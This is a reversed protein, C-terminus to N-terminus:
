PLTVPASGLRKVSREIELYTQTVPFYEVHDDQRSYRKYPLKMSMFYIPYHIVIKYIILKITCMSLLLREM